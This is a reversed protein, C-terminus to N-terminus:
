LLNKVAEQRCKSNDYLDAVMTPLDKKDRYCLAYVVVM